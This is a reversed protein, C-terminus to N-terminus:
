VVAIRNSERDFQLKMSEVQNTTVYRLEIEV